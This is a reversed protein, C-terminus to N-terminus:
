FLKDRDDFKSLKNGYFLTHIFFFLSIKHTDSYLGSKLKQHKIKKLNFKIQDIYALLFITSNIENKELTIYLNYIFLVFRTIQLDLYCPKHSSLTQRQHCIDRDILWFM